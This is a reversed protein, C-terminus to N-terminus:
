CAEAWWGRCLSKRHVGKKKDRKSTMLLYVSWSLVEALEAEQVVDEGEWV